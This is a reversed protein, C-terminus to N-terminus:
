ILKQFIGTVKKQWSSAGYRSVIEERIDWGVVTGTGRSLGIWAEMLRAPESAPFIGPYHHGLNFPLAGVKYALLPLKMLCAELASLGFSESLSGPQVALDSAALLQPIDCRAGYVILRGCGECELQRLRALDASDCPGVIVLRANAPFRSEKLFKEALEIQGKGKGVRGVCIAIHAEPPWGLSLRIMRRDYKASDFRDEDIRPNLAGVEGLFRRSNNAHHAVPDCALLLDARNAGYQAWKRVCRDSGFDYESQWLSVISRGDRKVLLTSWLEYFDSAFLVHRTGHRRLFNEVGMRFPMIRLWSLPKRPYPIGITLHDKALSVYTEFLQGGRSTVVGIPWGEASLFRLLNLISLEAGGVETTKLFFVIFPLKKMEPSILM